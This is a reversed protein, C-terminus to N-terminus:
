DALKSVSADYGPFWAKSYPVTVVPVGVAPALVVGGNPDGPGAYM